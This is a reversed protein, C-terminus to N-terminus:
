YSFGRLETDADGIQIQLLINANEEPEADGTLKCRAEHMQCLLVTHCM